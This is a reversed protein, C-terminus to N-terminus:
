AATSKGGIRATAFKSAQTVPPADFVELDGGQEKTHVVYQTADIGAFLGKADVQWFSRDPLCYDDEIMEDIAGGCHYWSGSDKWAIRVTGHAQITATFPTNVNGELVSFTASVQSHAPVPIQASYIWKRTRSVAQQQTASLSLKIQTKAGGVLPVNVTFETGVELGETISWTFTDTTEKDVSFTQTDTVSTDNTYESTQLAVPRQGSVSLNDYKVDVLTWGTIDFQNIRWAESGGHSLLDVIRQKLIENANRM